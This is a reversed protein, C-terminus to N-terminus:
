PSHPPVLPQLNAQFVSHLIPCFPPLSSSFSQFGTSMLDSEQEFRVRSKCDGFLQSTKQHTTGQTGKWHQDMCTYCGVRAALQKRVELPLHHIYPHWGWHHAKHNPMLGHSVIEPNKKPKGETFNRWKDYLHYLWQKIILAALHHEPSTSGVRAM